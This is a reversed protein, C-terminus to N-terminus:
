GIIANHLLGRAASVEPLEFRRNLSRSYWLHQVTKPIRSGYMIPHRQSPVLTWHMCLLGLSSTHGVPSCHCDRWSDIRGFSIQGLKSRLYRAQKPKLRSRDKLLYCLLRLM